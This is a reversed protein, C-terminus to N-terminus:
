YVFTMDITIKHIYIPKFGMFVGAFWEILNLRIFYLCYFLSRM